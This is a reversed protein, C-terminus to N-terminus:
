TSWNESVQGIRSQFLPFEASTRIFISLTNREKTHNRKLSDLMLHIIQTQHSDEATQTIIIIDFFTGHCIRHIVASVGM